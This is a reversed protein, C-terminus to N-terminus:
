GAKRHMINDGTLRDAQLASIKLWRGTIAAASGQVTLLLQNLIASAFVGENVFQYQGQRTGIAANAEPKIEHSRDQYVLDTVDTLLLRALVKRDRGGLIDIHDGFVEVRASHKSGVVTLLNTEVAFPKADSEPARRRTFFAVVKSLTSM